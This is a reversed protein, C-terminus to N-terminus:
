VNLLKNGWVIEGSLTKVTVSISIPLPFYNRTFQLIEGMGLCRWANAMMGLYFMEKHDKEVIQFNLNDHCSGESYCVYMVYM